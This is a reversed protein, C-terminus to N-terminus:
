KVNNYAVKMSHLVHSHDYFAVSTKFLEERVNKSCMKFKSIITNGKTCISNFPTSHIAM